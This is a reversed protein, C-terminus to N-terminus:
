STDCYIRHCSRNCIACDTERVWAPTATDGARLHRAVRFVEMRASRMPDRIWLRRSKYKLFFECKNYFISILLILTDTAYFQVCM